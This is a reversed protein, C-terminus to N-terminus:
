AGGGRPAVKLADTAAPGIRRASTPSAARGRRGGDRRAAGGDRRVAVTNVVGDLAVRSSQSAVAAANPRRSRRAGHGRRAGVRLRGALLLDEALAAVDRALEPARAPDQELTLLDILLRVSLRRVNDQGLTDLM